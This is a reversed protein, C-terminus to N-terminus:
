DTIAIKGSVPAAGPASRRQKEGEGTLRARVSVRGRGPVLAVRADPRVPM